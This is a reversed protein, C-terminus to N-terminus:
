GSVNVDAELLLNAGIEAAVEILGRGAIFKELSEAIGDDAELLPGAAFGVGSEECLDM